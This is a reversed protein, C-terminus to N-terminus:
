TKEIDPYGCKYLLERHKIVTKTEIDRFTQKANEWETQTESFGIPSLEGIEYQIKKFIFLKEAQKLQAQAATLEKRNEQLDHYNQQVELNITYLIDAKSLITKAVSYHSAQSRFANGFGDFTWDFRIGVTM